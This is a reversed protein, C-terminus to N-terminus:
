KSKGKMNKRIIMLFYYLKIKKKLLCNIYVKKFGQYSKSFDFKEFIMSELNDHIQNILLRFEKYKISCEAFMELIFRNTEEFFKNTRFENIEQNFKRYVEPYVRSLEYINKLRKNKEIIRTISSPNDVYQYGEFNITKISKAYIMVTMSFLLDEGFGITEDFRIANDILLQRELLQNYPANFACTNEFIEFFEKSYMEIKPNRDDRVVRVVKTHEDMQNELKEIYESVVYDDSDIFAIYKGTAKEIGLNRASSVGENEKHIVKIRKDRKAWDDCKEGSCDTAGDDILLIELKQYTQNVISEICRDLYKEVNYVPVIVSILDKM